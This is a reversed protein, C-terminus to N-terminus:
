GPRTSLSDRKARGKPLCQKGHRRLSSEAVGIRRALPRVAAGNRLEANTTKVDAMSCIGCAGVAM